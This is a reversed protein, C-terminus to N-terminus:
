VDAALTEVYPQMKPWAGLAEARAAVDGATAKRARFLEKLGEIAIPLGVLRQFRFLDIVTRLPSFIKIEVGEVLRSEVDSSLMESSLRVVRIKPTDIKPEWDKRGIAIWVRKPLQDTLGYFALASALCIVGRPIRKAAEAVSHQEEISADALQYLGRGLRTVVGGASM